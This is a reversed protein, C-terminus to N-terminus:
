GKLRPKRWRLRTTAASASSRGSPRMRGATTKVGDSSTRSRL